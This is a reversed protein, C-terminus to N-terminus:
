VSCSPGFGKIWKVMAANARARDRARLIAPLVRFLDYDWHRHGSTVLPHHYKLFGWVRGLTVLNAIQTTTLKDIVVGSGNDFQHDFDVVTKGWEAKPAQWIPKGDVLLQLDDAWAKGTGALLVGFFLQKSEPKVPLSIAYEAWGTTGKLQRSQMNEFALPSEGDERMWLGVFGSVGETRLFGRFEIMTGAFDMPMFNTITSFDSTSDTHREIRAAWRGGRVVKDDAFITGPPDGQWGYPLGGEPGGEEFGLLKELGARDTSQLRGTYQALGPMATAVCVLALLLRAIAAYYNTGSPFCLGQGNEQGYFDYM